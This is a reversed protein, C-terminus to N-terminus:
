LNDKDIDVLLTKRSFKAAVRLMNLLLLKVKQLKMVKVIVM